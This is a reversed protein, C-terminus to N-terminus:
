ATPAVRRAPVNRGGYFQRIAADATAYVGPMSSIMRPHRGLYPPQPTPMAIPAPSIPAEIPGGRARVHSSSVDIQRSSLSPM